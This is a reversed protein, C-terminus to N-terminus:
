PSRRRYPQERDFVSAFISTFYHLSILLVTCNSALSNRVRDICYAFQRTVLYIATSITQDERTGGQSTKRIDFLKVSGARSRKEM